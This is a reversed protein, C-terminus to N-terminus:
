SGIPTSRKCDLWLSRADFLVMQTDVSASMPEAGQGLRTEREMRIHYETSAPWVTGGTGDGLLSMLFASFAKGSAAM